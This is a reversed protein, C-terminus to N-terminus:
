PTWKIFMYNYTYGSTFYTRAAQTVSYLTVQGSAYTARFTYSATGTLDTIPIQTKTSMTTSNNYYMNGTMTDRVICGGVTGNYTEGSPETYWYVLDPEFESDISVTRTGNGSFTGSKFKVSGGSDTITIDDELYKGKTLLKKVANSVTAIVSGKYTVTTSM